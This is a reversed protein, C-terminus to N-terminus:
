RGGKGNQIKELRTIRNGNNDVKQSLRGYTFAVVAINLLVLFGISLFGALAGNMFKEKSPTM